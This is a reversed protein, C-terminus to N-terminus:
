HWDNNIEGTESNLRKEKLARLIKESTIPLSKIRVGVADYIANAIAPAVPILTPEGLGKAGFPGEPEEAEVFYCKIEPMDLATPVKYDLLNGNLVRGKNFLVQETLAYGIGQSIGGEVQGEALSRNIIKGSDHAAYYKLIKVLGTEPDVEVEAVHAAFPYGTSQNGYLDKGILVTDPDWKGHGIISAGGKRFLHHQVVEQVTLVKLSKEKEEKLNIKGDVIKLEEPAVELVEGATKLLQEKVKRAAHRVANGGIHTTRSSYAGFIYPAVDTNAKLVKIDSLPIGLEEAAIQALVTKSGQGLEVEASILLVKGDEHMKIIAESGHYDIGGRNGSCHIVGAVGIGRCIKKNKKKKLWGSEDRVKELCDKYGCSKLEWGHLTVDGTKSANRIRLELPDMGLCEAIDDMHSELAFHMQPNGYGRFAGSPMKNTYVCKAETRVSPLRYLNDSRVVMNNCVLKPSLSSYAGNDGLISIKRGLITGDKKVATEMSIKTGVRIRCSFNFEDDRTSALRVPMGTKLVLLACIVHIKSDLKGGFAGGIHFEQNVVIDSVNLNLAKAIQSRLAFPNQCPIWLELKGADMRGVTIYPELYCHNVPQTTYTDGIIYDAKKFAGDVDGRKIKVSHAINGPKEDHVLPAGEALAEEITFVAPLEEYEVYILELAEAAVEEDVAAVAAVEDGIFRVKEGALIQEDQVILGYKINPTDKATVVVKVGPLREAKSTDIRKIRAHAYPSRLIKGCLMGPLILDSIYKSIGTVKEIGDVRVPSGGIVPEKNNMM